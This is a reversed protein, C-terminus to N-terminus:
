KILVSLVMRDRPSGIHIRSPDQLAIINDPGLSHYCDVADPLDLPFENASTYESDPLIRLDIYDEERPGM